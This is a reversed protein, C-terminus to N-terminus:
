KDDKRNNRLLALEKMCLKVVNMAITAEDQTIQFEERLQRGLHILNRFERLAHGLHAGSKRLVGTKESVNILDGLSWRSLEPSSEKKLQAYVDKSTQEDYALADLLMGELIGGCLIVCSKWANTEFSSQVENWDNALYKQINPTQIFSFEDDTTENQEESERNFLARDREYIPVASNFNQMMRLHFYHRLEGKPFEDVDRPLKVHWEQGEQLGFGGGGSFPSFYVLKSLLFSQSANLSLAEELEQSKILDSQPSTLYRKHLFELYRVLLDEAEKGHDTLSVGLLSLQYLQTGNDWIEFVVTGGLPKLASCVKDKGFASHLVLFPIWKKYELYYSWIENLIEKQGHTLSKRLDDLTNM